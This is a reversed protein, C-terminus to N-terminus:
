YNKYVFQIFLIIGMILSIVSIFNLIQTTSDFRESLKNFDKLENRMSYISSLHSLLNSLLSLAFMVWSFILGTKNTNVNIDVIDKVFGISLILAGSSLYTLQKDFQNESYDLAEYLQNRYQNDEDTEKVKEPGEIESEKM